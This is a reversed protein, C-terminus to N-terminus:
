CISKLSQPNVNVRAAPHVSIQAPHSNPHFNSSSKTCWHKPFSGIHSLCKLKILSQKSATSSTSGQIWSITIVIALTTIHHPLVMHHTVCNVSLGSRLLNSTTSWSIRKTSYYAYFTFHSCEILPLPNPYVERTISPPPPAASPLSSLPPHTAAIACNPNPPM